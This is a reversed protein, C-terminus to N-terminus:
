QFDHTTVMPAGTSLLVQIESKCSDCLVRDLFPQNTTPTDCNECAVPTEAQAELTDTPM